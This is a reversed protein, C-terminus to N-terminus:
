RQARSVARGLTSDSPSVNKRFFDNGHAERGPVESNLGFSEPDPNNVVVTSQGAGAPNAAAALGSGFALFLLAPLFCVLRQLASRKQIPILSRTVVRLIGADM